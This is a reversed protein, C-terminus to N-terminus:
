VVGGMKVSEVFSRSSKAFKKVINARLEMGSASESTM